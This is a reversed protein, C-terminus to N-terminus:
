DSRRAAGGGAGRLRPPPGGTANAVLKFDFDPHLIFAAYETEVGDPWQVQFALEAKNIWKTLEGPVSM